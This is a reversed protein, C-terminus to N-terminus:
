QARKALTLIVRTAYIAYTPLSATVRRSCGVLAIRSHAECQLAMSGGTAAVRGKRRSAGLGPTHSAPAALDHSDSALLRGPRRCSRTAFGTTCLRSLEGCVAFCTEPTVHMTQPGLPLPRVDACDPGRGTGTWIRVMGRLRPAVDVHVPPICHSGSTLVWSSPQISPYRNSTPVTQFPKSTM